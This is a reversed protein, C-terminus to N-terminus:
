IVSIDAVLGVRSYNLLYIRTFLTMNYAMSEHTHTHTHLCAQTIHLDKGNVNSREWNLSVTGQDM